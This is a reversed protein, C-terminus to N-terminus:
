IICLELMEQTTLLNNQSAHRQGFHLTQGGVLTLGHDAEAAQWCEAVQHLLNLSILHTNASVTWRTDSINHYNFLLQEHVFMLILM